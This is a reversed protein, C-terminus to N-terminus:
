KDDDDGREPAAVTPRTTEPNTIRHVPGVQWSSRKAIEEPTLPRSSLRKAVLMPRPKPTANVTGAPDDDLFITLCRRRPKKAARRAALDVVNAKKAM